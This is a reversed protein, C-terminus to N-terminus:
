KEYLRAVHQRCLRGRGAERLYLAQLRNYQTALEATTIARDPLAPIPKAGTVCAAPAPALPVKVAITQVDPQGTCGALLLM